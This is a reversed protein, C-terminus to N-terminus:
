ATPADEELIPALAALVSNPINNQKACDKENCKPQNLLSAIKLPRLGTLDADANQIDEMFLLHKAMAESNKETKEMGDTIKNAKLSDSVARDLVERMRDIAIINHVIALKTATDYHFNIIQDSGSKIADLSNLAQHLKLLTRNSVTKPSSVM